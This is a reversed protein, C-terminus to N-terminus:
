GLHREIFSEGIESLGFALERERMGCELKELYSKIGWDQRCCFSTKSISLTSAGYIMPITVEDTIRYEKDEWRFGVGM